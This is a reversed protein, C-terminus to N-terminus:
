NITINHSYQPPCYNIERACQNRCYRHFVHCQTEPIIDDEDGRLPIMHWCPHCVTCYYSNGHAERTPDLSEWTTQCMHHLQNGCNDVRCNVFSVPMASAAGSLQCLGWSAWNCQDEVPADITAMGRGPSARTGMRRTTNMPLLAAGHGKIWQVVNLM